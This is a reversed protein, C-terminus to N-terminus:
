SGHGYENKMRKVKEWNLAHLVIENLDTYKPQWGLVEKAKSADAVLCVPDGLRRAEYNKPVMCGSTQEVAQIVQHVSFGIGNGLNFCDSMEDRWLYNLALMHASSLDDVHVYDRICTGDSTDYDDRFVRLPPRISLAAGIALPILHTEPEHREGIRSAPDTGAANFYRLTVRKLGHAFDFDRLMAEVFLKSRGYPNIPICPHQEDIPVYQPEGFVAASSSFVVHKVNHRVMSNLLMLTNCVNTDYYRGPDAM